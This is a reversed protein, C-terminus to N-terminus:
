RAAPSTPSAVPTEFGQTWGSLPGRPARARYWIGTVAYCGAVIAVVPYSMGSLPLSAAAFAAALVFAGNYLMDYFVFVRGRFPDDVGRQVLTDTCIKQSQSTVGLLGAGLILPGARFTLGCGLEAAAAALLCFTIWGELRWRRTVLPTVVAGIGFGAGSVAVAVAFGALGRAPHAPDNFHNRYLLLTMITVTGYCFRSVTVALLARGAAPRRRVHRAGAAVGSLVSSVAAWAGSGPPGDPGLQARPILAALLAAGSYLAGVAILGGVTARLGSGVLAHMMLSVAGGSTAALTGATPCLANATVLQSPAVTHPLAASLGALVFRNASLVALAVSYFAPNPAGVAVLLGVVLVLAGRLLNAWLLVQRRPWRDLFVGAFPGVVTFPLLLVAFAQAVEAPTAQKEPSFVVYSALAVQFAGDGFQGVLRTALLLRFSRLGPGSLVGRLAAISGLRSGTRREDDSPIPASFAM